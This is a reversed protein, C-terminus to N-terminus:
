LSDQILRIVPSVKSSIFDTILKASRQLNEQYDEENLSEPSFGMRQSYVTSWKKSSSIKIGSRRIIDVVKDRIEQDGPGIVLKITLHKPTNHLELLLMRGSKTWGKVNNMLPIGDLERFGFNIYTKTIRDPVLTAGSVSCAGPLTAAWEILFQSFGNVPAQDMLYRLAADHRKWLNRALEQLREDEM